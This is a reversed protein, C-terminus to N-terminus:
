QARVEEIRKGQRETIASKLTSLRDIERRKWEGDRDSRRVAQMRQNIDSLRRQERNLTQRMALVNRHKERLAGADGGRGLKQLEMVDAYIRNSERLGEYFLTSYRTYPAPAGLDRYFRRIPQYESWRKDPAEQGTATRWITDIMGAGTTGVAGLYGRILHDAQVPSVALPTEDGFARSAASLARGAATTTDRARLGISLREMGTTEIDRGTFADKNSYIDIAPQFMQPTPNFAFTQLLMEWMRERFLKGTAKDDMFQQAVREAMTAIAGVEFPKPLFFANDGIRFFWYTDKQWEELKQYEDDDANAMYLALSALTLAGTVTAFRAAAVRDGATGKGMATLLAPKAGSRYLKDLGQLRANLFPVVRILFRVAPWAGHQSFDMVDRAEFAARLRGMQEVNQVYTAARSINESTNIAENWKRWGQRLIQPIMSSDSVLQAGRVSQRLSARVEDPDMGYIHGFSFAGGSALMEARTKDNRFAQVGQVANRLMNKSAPSTASAQMLDRLTNAIVFQPTVTTMNTFTRKFASMARVAFNNLGPDSLSTIAEFVLPDDVQYFVRLGKELVFTSTDTDRNSEPVKRAIGLKEANKIAQAAAQNKLSASLLHHFNMLTNELLDNLNERGGKLKKYAEQRSLGKGARPGKAAGEDEMVRYFPVYFEDRWMTRSEESIIGAEEAIALVDDRYQQFERFVKAYLTPRVKDDATKGGNMRKGAAIEEPSFLHERGEAMLKEARNAALWGFFREVEAPSGLQHLVATLGGTADGDKMAIVRQAGDFVIRGTSMMANLAGSAASSMKALVWSSDTIASDIFDKGHLNEDLEKLAAYRDVAGQRIKLGARDLASRIADAAPTRSAGIKGLYQQQMADLDSFAKAAVPGFDRGTIRRGAARARDIVAGTTDIAAGARSFRIGGRGADGQSALDGVNMKALAVLDDISPDIVGVGARLAWARVMAVFDRVLKGVPVGIHADIWNMLPGDVASFGARRGAIVAQEVIYSAAEAANGTEGANEMRAAVGDLFTRLPQALTTRREIMSLARADIGARQKGHVAEHLLVAPATVPNLNPGVLFTMGSRPDFFGNIAGAESFLEISDDLSRGTKSSFAEAIRRPRADDIVVLGGRKGERGKELMRQVPAVLSPFQMEMARLLSRENMPVRRRAASQGAFSFPVNVVDAETIVRPNLRKITNAEPLQLGVARLWQPAKGTQYYRLSGNMWASIEKAGGRGYISAIKNIRHFGGGKADLHIAVAVDRGSADKAEIFAVLAGTETQSDFVMVPDALLAPLNRLVEVPVDHDRVEPRSAKHIVSSPMQVPLAKAGLARLVAPTDGVTLDTRPATEAAAIRDVAQAFQQADYPDPSFANRGTRSFRVGDPDAEGSVDGVAEAATAQQGTREDLWDLFPTRRDKLNGTPIGAADYLLREVQPVSTRFKHNPAAEIEAASQGTIAAVIATRADANEPGTLGDPSGNGDTRDLLVSLARGVPSGDGPAVTARGGSAGGAAGGQQGGAVTDRAVPEVGGVAPVDSQQPAAGASGAMDAGAQAAGPAVVPADTREAPIAGDTTAGENQAAPQTMARALRERLGANLVTWPIGPVNRRQIPNLGARDAIAQRDAAPMSAWRAGAEVSSVPAESGRAEARAAVEERAQQPAKPRRERIGMAAADLENPASPEISPSPQADRVDQFRQITQLEETTPANERFGLRSLMAGFREAPNATEPDELVADLVARRRTQAERQMAEATRRDAQEFEFERRQTQTEAVQQRRSSVDQREQGLLDAFENMTSFSGSPPPVFDRERDVAQRRGAAVPAVPAAGSDVALAAASSMPGASPDLGMQESPRRAAQLRQGAEVNRSRKAMREDIEAHFLDIEYKSTSTKQRGNEDIIVQPEVEERLAEKMATGGDDEPYDTNRDIFDLVRARQVGTVRDVRRQVELPDSAMDTPAIPAAEPAQDADQEPQPSPQAGRSAPLVNAGAGMMGGALTGEVAARAAGEMLPKGEAWNQWMQEQVSQPLEEFAGESMAGGLMRRVLGVPPRDTVAGAAGGAIVSEPDVVGMRQALRGGAYGLGAGVAGAGAAAAAATRADVDDSIQDMTQGAIVAGEGGAGAIVAQRAAQAATAPAAIAGAARGAGLAARGALGGALMSPVSEAALGLVKGPNRLYAGAVDTASGEEWAKDIEADAAQRQPSYESRAEEAWKGPQFGTMEGLADAARSAHREGTLAAVPIDALGTLAGPLQQAGRKLDTGIDSFLSTNQKPPTYDLPKIDGREWDVDNSGSSVPSGIEGTEWDIEAM